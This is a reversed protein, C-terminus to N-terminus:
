MNQPDVGLKKLQEQVAEGYPDMRDRLAINFRNAVRSGDPLQSIRQIEREIDKQIAGGREILGGIREMVEEPSLSMGELGKITSYALIFTNEIFGMIEEYHKVLEKGSNINALLEKIKEVDDATHTGPKPSTRIVMYRLWILKEEIFDETILKLKVSGGDEVLRDVNLFHGDGGVDAPYITLNIEDM